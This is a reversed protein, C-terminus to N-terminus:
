SETEEDEIADKINKTMKKALQALAYWAKFNQYKKYFFRYIKQILSIGGFIMSLFITTAVGVVQRMKDKEAHLLQFSINRRLYM